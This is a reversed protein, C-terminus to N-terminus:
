RSGGSSLHRAEANVENPHTGTPWIVEPEVKTARRDRVVVRWMDPNDEGECELVGIFEHGPFADVAAQVDELLTYARYAEGWAPALASATRRLLPGDPTEVTEEDVHLVLGTKEDYSLADRNYRSDKVEDWTLAPVIHIVGTVTTYYGM